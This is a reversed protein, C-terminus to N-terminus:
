VAANPDVFTGDDTSAPLTTGDEAPAAPEAPAAAADAQAQDLKTKLGSVAADLGSTDVGPNAAKLAQIETDINVAEDGLANILETAADISAQTMDFGRETQGSLSYLLDIITHLKNLVRLESVVVVRISGIPIEDDEREANSM